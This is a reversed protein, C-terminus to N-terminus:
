APDSCLDAYHSAFADFPLAPETAFFRGLECVREPWDAMVTRVSRGLDQPDSADAVEHPYGLDSLEGALSSGTSVILYKRAYIAEWLVGSGSVAYRGSYPLVLCDMRALADAYEEDTLLGTLWDLRDTARAQLRALRDSSDDGFKQLEAPDIQVIWGPGDPQCEEIAALLTRFGREPRTAGLIGFHPEQGAVRDLDAAIARMRAAALYPFKYVTWGPSTQQLWQAAATTETFLLTRAAWPTAAGAMGESLLRGHLSAAAPELLHDVDILGIVLRRPKPGQGAALWRVVGLLMFTRASHIILTEPAQREFIVEIQRAFSRALGDLERERLSIDSYVYPSFITAPCVKLNRLTAGKEARDIVIEPLRGTRDRVFDSFFRNYTAHHGARDGHGPDLIVTGEGPRIEARAAPVLEAAADWDGYLLLGNRLVNLAHDPVPQQRHARRYLAHAEESRGVRTLSLAMYPLLAPPSDPPPWGTALTGAEDRHGSRCLCHIANIRAWDDNPMATAIMAWAAGALGLRGGNQWRMAHQRLDYRRGELLEAVLPELRRFADVTEVHELAHDVLHPLLGDMDKALAGSGNVLLIATEAPAARIEALLRLRESQAKPVAADALARLLAAGEAGDLYGLWRWLAPLSLRGSDIARILIAAAAGREAEPLDSYTLLLHLPHQGLAPDRAVAERCLDRCRVLLDRDGTAAAIRAGLLAQHFGIRGSATITEFVTRAQPPFGALELMDALRVLDPRSAGSAQDIKHRVLAEVQEPPAFRLIALRSELDAAKADILTELFRASEPGPDRLARRIVGGLAQHAESWVAATLSGDALIDALRQPEPLDTLCAAVRRIFRIEEPQARHLATWLVLAAESQGSEGLHVAAQRIEERRDVPLTDM